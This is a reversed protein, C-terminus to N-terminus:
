SLHTYNSRVNQNPSDWRSRRSIAQHSNSGITTSRWISNHNQTIHDQPVCGTLLLSLYLVILVLINKKLSSLGKLRSLNSDMIYPGSFVVLFIILGSLLYCYIPLFLQLDKLIEQKLKFRSLYILIIAIFMFGMSSLSIWMKMLAPTMM